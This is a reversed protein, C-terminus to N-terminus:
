TRRLALVGLLGIAVLAFGTPEPVTAPVAWPPGVRSGFNNKWVTYDGADVGGTGNGASNIALESAAGLNNRWVTYDALNVQGDDNFDGPLGGASLLTVEGTTYLQSTDWTTNPEMAIQDFAGTPSVGAWDFLQFTTGALSETDVEDDLLLELTGGLSVPVGADFSLTSGWQDDEFVTRLTGLPDISMGDEVVIAIPTEHHYDWLRMTEGAAIDLGAVHGDLRILNQTTSSATNLFRAGRADAGNLNTGTLTADQFSVNTLNSGSFNANTLTADYFVADTFDQASLDWGSLDDQGLRVGSLDGQQYSATSYLQSATIGNGANSYLSAGRIIAGTLNAGTLTASTLNAGSLDQGSLDWDSLDEYTFNIETLDRAQYSATSYLQAASLGPQTESAFNVGRVIAGTLNAGTLTSRYFHADTLDQGSFDWGSLNNYSLEISTLDGAQYSTTSYLQASVFGNQTVAHLRAGAVVAGTMTAGALKASVFNADELQAGTLDADELTAFGFNAGNLNAGILYAKTLNDNAANLGPGASLGAGDPCLVNSPQKGQSPDLPDVWEWQYIDGRVLSTTCTVIILTSFTRVLLQYHIARLHKVFLRQFM